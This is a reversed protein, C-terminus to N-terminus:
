RTLECLVSEWFMEITKKKIANQTTLDLIKLTQM